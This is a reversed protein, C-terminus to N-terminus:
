RAHPAAHALPVKWIEDAYERIARDASFWGMNAVNRIAKARWSPRDRWMADVARQAACYSAFDATVMFWDTTM